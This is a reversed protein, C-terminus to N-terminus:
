CYSVFQGGLHADRSTGKNARELGQRGIANAEGLWVGDPALSAIQDALKEGAEDADTGVIIKVGRDHAKKM